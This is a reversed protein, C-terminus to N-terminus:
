LFDAIYQSSSQVSQACVVGRGTHASNVEPVLTHLHTQTHEHLLCIMGDSPVAATNSVLILVGTKQKVGQCESRILCDWTDTHCDAQAPASTLNSSSDSPPGEVGKVGRVNHTCNIRITTFATLM